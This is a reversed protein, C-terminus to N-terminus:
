ARRRSSMTMLIINKDLMIIMMLINDVIFHEHEGGALNDDINLDQGAHDGDDCDESGINDFINWGSSCSASSEVLWTRGGTGAQTGGCSRSLYM